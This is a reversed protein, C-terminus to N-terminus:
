GEPKLLDILEEEELQELLEMPFRLLRSPLKLLDVSSM